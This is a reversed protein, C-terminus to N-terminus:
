PLHQDLFRSVGLITVLVSTHTLENFKGRAVANRMERWSTIRDNDAGSVIEIGKGPQYLAAQLQSLTARQQDYACGAVDALRRLGNELAASALFAAIALQTQKRAHEARAAAHVQAITLLDGKSEPPIAAVTQEFEELSDSDIQNLFEPLVEVAAAGVLVSIVNDASPHRAHEGTAGGNLFMTFLNITMREVKEMEGRDHVIPQSWFFKPEGGAPYPLPTAVNLWQPWWMTSANFVFNRKPGPYLTATYRSPLTKGVGDILDGEALVELGPRDVPNGTFEHGVLGHIRDGDALGTGEYFRSALSGQTNTCVWDAVGVAPDVLRAGMLEGGDAFSGDNFGAQEPQIALLWPEIPGWRGIRRIIRHRRDPHALSPSVDTVGTLSGGCFFAVSLGNQPLDPQSEVAGKLNDHMAVSYYEDHGTALLAKARRRLAVSSTEHLDLGSMYSVDYGRSEMWFLLPYEFILFQSAGVMWACREPQDMVYWPQAMAYPRDFSVHTAPGWYGIKAPVGHFDYLSYEDPWANYASWTFESCKFLFDCTREDRLVFIVYSQTPEPVEVQTLQGLYVGSLWDPPIMVTVSVPWDCERLQFDGIPPDDRKGAPFVGLQQMLRAGTGGYFGMRYVDLTFPTTSSVCVELTEGAKLSNRTCFGEIDTSRRNADIRAHTNIWSTTGPQQNEAEIRNM